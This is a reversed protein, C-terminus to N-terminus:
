GDESALDSPEVGVGVSGITSIPDDETPTTAVTKTHQLLYTILDGSDTLRSVFIHLILFLLSCCRTRSPYSTALFHSLLPM